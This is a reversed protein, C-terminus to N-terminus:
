CEGFYGNVEGFSQWFLESQEELRSRESKRKPDYLLSNVDPRVLDLSDKQRRFNEPKFLEVINDYYYYFANALRKIQKDAEFRDEWYGSILIQNSSLFMIIAILGYWQDEALYIGSEHSGVQIGITGRDRTFRVRLDITELVVIFNDFSNPFESHLVKFGKNLLFRFPLKIHELVTPLNDLSMLTELKHGRTPSGIRTEPAM